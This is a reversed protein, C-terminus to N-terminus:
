AAFELHEWTEVLSLPKPEPWQELAFTMSKYAISRKNKYM